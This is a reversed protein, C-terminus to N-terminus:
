GLLREHAERLARSCTEPPYGRRALAAYVRRDLTRPDGGGRSLRKEAVAVAAELEAEDGVSEIVADVIGRDVGKRRLEECMAKRSAGTESLRTRVLARAFHADDILVAVHEAAAFLADYLYFAARHHLAVVLTGIQRCFHHSDVAPEVRAIDADKRNM